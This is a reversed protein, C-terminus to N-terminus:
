LPPIHDYGDELPVQLGGLVRSVCAYFAGTLVLEVLVLGRPELATAKM